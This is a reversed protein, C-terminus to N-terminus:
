LGSLFRGQTMDQGLPPTPYITDCINLMRWIIRCKDEEFGDFSLTVVVWVCVRM